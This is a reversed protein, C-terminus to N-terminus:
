CNVRMVIEDSPVANESGRSFPLIRWQEGVCPNIEKVIKVDALLTEGLSGVTPLVRGTVEYFPRGFGSGLDYSCYEWVEKTLAPLLLRYVGNIEIADWVSVGAEHRNTLHNFSHGSAPPDGARLYCFRADSLINSM